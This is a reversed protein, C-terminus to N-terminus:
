ISTDFYNEVLRNALEEASVNYNGSAMATKLQAVKDERVDPVKKLANKAIQYDKGSRSIELSDSSAVKNVGSTKKVTAAQYLQNVKNYADIRM